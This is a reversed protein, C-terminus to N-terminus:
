HSFERVCGLSSYKNNIIVGIDEMRRSEQEFSVEGADLRYSVGAANRCHQQILREINDQEIHIERSIDDATLFPEVPQLPNQL